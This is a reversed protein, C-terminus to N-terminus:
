RAGAYTAAGSAARRAAFIDIGLLSGLADIESLSAEHYLVFPETLLAAAREPSVRTRVLQEPSDFRMWRKKMESQLEMIAVPVTDKERLLDRMAPLKAGVQTRTAARVEDESSVRLIAVDWEDAAVEISQPAKDGEPVLWVVPRRRCMSACTEFGIGPTGGGAGIVIHLVSRHLGSRATQRIEARDREYLGPARLFMRLGTEQQLLELEEEIARGWSASLPQRRSGGNSRPVSLYVEADQACPEPAIRAALLRLALNAVTANSEIETAFRELQAVSISWGVTRLLEAATAAAVPGQRQRPWRVLPRADFIARALQAAARAMVEPPEHGGLRATGLAIRVADLRAPRVAASRRLRTVHEVLQLWQDLTIEPM